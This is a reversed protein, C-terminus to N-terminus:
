NQRYRPCYISWVLNGSCSYLVAELYTKLDRSLSPDGKASKVTSCYETMYRKVEEACITKAAEETVHKEQMIVWIANFVYDQRAQKADRKEKDWSYLDNTLGLAAYGARALKMCQDYESEPITLAM